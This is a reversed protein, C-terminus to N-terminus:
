HILVVKKNIILQNSYIVKVLYIGNTLSQLNLTHSTTNIKELFFAKGNMDTVEIQQIQDHSRINVLGSTPNPFFSVVTNNLENLGTCVSVNVSFVATASPITCGDSVNVAFTNTTPGSPASGIINISNSTQGSSWNYSYPGGNGQSTFFPTLVQADGDCITFSSGVVMLPPTVMVTIIKPSPACGNADQMSVTYNTAIIPNVFHPGGGVFSNPTWSYTYGPTGGSGFAAIQTAQGYCITSNPITQLILSSPQSVNVVQSASCGTNDTVTFSYVGSGIGSVTQSLASTVTTQPFVPSSWTITYPAQGPSYSIAISANSLGFCAPPTVTFGDIAVCPQATIYGAILIFSLLVLKKM